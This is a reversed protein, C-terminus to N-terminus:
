RSALTSLMLDEFAEKDVGTAWRLKRGGFLVSATKGSSRGEVVVDVRAEKFTFIDPAIVSAAAVTNWFYYHLGKVLAYLKAALLSAKSGTAQKDLRLLFERNMPTQNTVDLPILRVPVGTELLSKAARPDAFMNWEASGDYDSHEVNGAVNMAGGMIICEEVKEVLEPRDEFVSAVNTLPGTTVITVPQRSHTLCDAILIQSKRANSQYPKKLANDGFIPLENIIYSERRWNEPFCRVVQDDSFGIETGELDLFTAMKVLAEYAQRAYCDGDTVTVALLDVAPALWLLLASVHDDVHGGNDHIVPRAM